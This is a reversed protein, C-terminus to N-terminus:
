AVADKSDVKVTTPSNDLGLLQLIADNDGLKALVKPVLVSVAEFVDDPSVAAARAEDINRQMRATQERVADAQDHAGLALAKIMGTLETTAKLQAWALLELRTVPEAPLEERYNELMELTMTLGNRRFVITDDGEVNIQHSM